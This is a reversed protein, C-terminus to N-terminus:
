NGGRVPARASGGRRFNRRDKLTPASSFFCSCRISVNCHIFSTLAGRQLSLRARLDSAQRKNTNSGAADVIPGSCRSRAVM